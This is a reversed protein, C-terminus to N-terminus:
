IEDHLEISDQKHHTLVALEMRRNSGEFLQLIFLVLVGSIPEFSNNITM